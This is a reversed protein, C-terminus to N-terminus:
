KKMTEFYCFRAREVLVLPIDFFQGDCDMRIGESGAEALLGKFNRRNLLPTLPTLTRVEIIKGVHEQFHKLKRLPRNMGPSSVELHYTIPIPDAVDLLDSVIRSINACDDVTIGDEQDIYLRLVWGHPERRYEVEVLEMGEAEIVPEVLEWIRAITEQTKDGTESMTGTKGQPTLEDGLFLFLPYFIM